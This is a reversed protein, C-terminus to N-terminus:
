LAKDKEDTDFTDYNKEIQVAYQFIRFFYLKDKGKALISVYGSGSFNHLDSRIRIWIWLAPQSSRDIVIGAQKLHPRRHQSSGSRMGGSQTQGPSAPLRFCPYVPPYLLYTLKWM